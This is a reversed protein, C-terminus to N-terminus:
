PQIVGPNQFKWLQEPPRSPEPPKPPHPVIPMLTAPQYPSRIPLTSQLERGELCDFALRRRRNLANEKRDSVSAFAVRFQLCSFVDVAIRRPWRGNAQGCRPCPPPPQEAADRIARYREIESRLWEFSESTVPGDHYDCNEELPSELLWTSRGRCIDEVRPSHSQIEPPLHDRLWVGLDCRCHAAAITSYRRGDQTIGIPDGAYRPHYVTVIGQGHCYPCDRSAQEADIRDSNAQSTGQQDKFPM